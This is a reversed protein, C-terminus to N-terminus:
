KSKTNKFEMIREVHKEARALLDIMVKNGDQLIRENTYYEIM